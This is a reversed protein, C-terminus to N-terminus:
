LFLSLYWKYVEVVVMILLILCVVKLVGMLCGCRVNYLKIEEQWNALEKRVIDHSAASGRAAAACQSCHAGGPKAVAEHRMVEVAAMIEEDRYQTKNALIEQAARRRRDGGCWKDLVDHVYELRQLEAKAEVAAEVVEERYLSKNALIDRAANEVHSAFHRIILSRNLVAGMNKWDYRSLEEASLGDPPFSWCLAPETHRNAEEEAQKDSDFNSCERDSFILIMKYALYADLSIKELAELMKRDAPYYYCHAIRCDSAEQPTIVFNPVHEETENRM